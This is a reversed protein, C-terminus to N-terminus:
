PHKKFMTLNNASLHKKLKGRNDIGNVLVSDSSKERKSLTIKM